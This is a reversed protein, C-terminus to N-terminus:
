ESASSGASYSDGGEAEKEADIYGKKTARLMKRRMKGMESCKKDSSDIRKKDRQTAGLM